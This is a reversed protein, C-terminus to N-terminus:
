SELRSHGALRAFAAADHACFATIEDAHAANLEALRRRNHRAAAADASGIAELLRVAPTSRPRRPDMESGLYCADGVHFLWRDDGQVAVGIHGRTHGALPVMVIGAPLGHASHVSEFGFWRDGGDIETVAWHPRHAWQASHYRLREYWTAPNTAARLEPGYVHVTADPFDALGGAHDLDLHTLVIHAVDSTTYGLAALQAAATEAETLRPRMAFRALGLHARPDRVAHRGYGTDILVLCDPAEVLLCHTVMGAAPVTGCNLHHVKM